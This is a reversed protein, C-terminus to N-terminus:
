LCVIMSARQKRRNAMPTLLLGVPSAHVTFRDIRGVTSVKWRFSGVM